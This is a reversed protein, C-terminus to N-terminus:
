AQAAAPSSKVGIVLLWLTLVLEGLMAPMAVQFLWGPQAPLLLGVLSLIVYTIGNIFLWVGIFRPMFGSRFVLLGLPLLWLGWFMECLIAGYDNLRICLMAMSERQPQAMASLYDAGRVLEFAGFWFVQNAFAQAVPILVLIVMVAALNKNVDKLLHYLGLAVFVFIVTSLLGVAMDIRFLTQHALIKGATAAANNKVVLKGQVYMLDFLGSFVLLLYLAGVYRASKKSPIM